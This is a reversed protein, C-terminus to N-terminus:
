MEEENLLAKRLRRSYRLRVFYNVMGIIIQQNNIGEDYLKLSHNGMENSEKEFQDLKNLLSLKKDNNNSLIVQDIEEHLDMMQMLFEPDPPSEIFEHAGELELLYKLRSLPELLTKYALNHNSILEDVMSKSSSSINMDPHLNRSLEYFKKRLKNLDIHYVRPIEFHAFYDEKM